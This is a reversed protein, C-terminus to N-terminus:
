HADAGDACYAHWLRQVVTIHSLIALVGLGVEILGTILALGTIIVREFRTLVGVKNDIGLGESRARTYSVMLSGILTAFTLAVGIWQSQRALHYGLGALVFGEAYRDLTSDLLAGFRSVHGGSRAVAGDLADLLSGVLYIVGAGIYLGQSAMVAAVIAILAGTVTLANASVGLRVLVGAVWNVPGQTVRRLWAALNEPIAKAKRGSEM